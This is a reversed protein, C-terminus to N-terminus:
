FKSLTAVSSSDSSVYAYKQQVRPQFVPPQIMQIKDLNNSVSILPKPAEPNKDRQGLYNNRMTQPYYKSQETSYNKLYSSSSHNTLPPSKVTENHGFRKKSGKDKSKHISYNMNSVVNEKDVHDYKKQIFSYKLEGASNMRQKKLRHGKSSGVRKSSKQIKEFKAEVNREENGPECIKTLDIKMLGGVLKKIEDMNSITNPNIINKEELYTLFEKLITLREKYVQQDICDERDQKIHLELYDMIQGKLLDISNSRKESHKHSHKNKSNKNSEIVHVGSSNRYHSGKSNPV